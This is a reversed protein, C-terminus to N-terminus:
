HFNLIQVHGTATLSDLVQGTAIWSSLDKDAPWAKKNEGSIVGKTKKDAFRKNEEFHQLTDILKKESEERDLILNLNLQDM